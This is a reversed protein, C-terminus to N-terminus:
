DTIRPDGNETRLGGKMNLGAEADGCLIEVIALAAALEVRPDYPNEIADVLRPLAAPNGIAGLALAAMSRVRVIQSRPADNKAVEPNRDPQGFTVNELALGYGDRIGLRGLARAAALRTERHAATKLKYRYTEVFRLDLTDGLANLAFTERAGLGAHALFMLDQCAEASGLRAMAETAQLRLGEDRDNMVRALLKIAGPERLRGLVTAANRRVAPEEHYLLYDALRHTQSQDGMRHLAFIAAVQVSPDPDTLLEGIRNRSSADKLEGLAVCAAFRVGPHEDHLATRIWPLGHRPSVMRLAEIAQCRVLPVHKYRVGQKLSALARQKLQATAPAGPPYPNSTCGAAGGLVVAITMARALPERIPRPGARWGRASPSSLRHRLKSVPQLKKM